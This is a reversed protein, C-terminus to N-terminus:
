WAWVLRALGIVADRAIPGFYRGDFSRRGDGLVLIEDGLRRCARWQQLPRGQADARLRAAVIRGNVFLQDGRACVEDGAVAAIRKIAPVRAPLYGRKAALASADRPLAVIVVDGRRAPGSPAVLYLGIAMSASANWMAIPTPTPLTALCALVGLVSAPGVFSSRPKDAEFDELSGAHEFM